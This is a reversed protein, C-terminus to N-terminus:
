KVGILTATGRLTTLWDQASPCCSFRHGLLWDGQINYVLPKGTECRLIVRYEEQQHDMRIYRDAPYIIGMGIWGIEPQQFGWLGM